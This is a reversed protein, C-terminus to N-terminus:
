KKGSLIVLNVAFIILFIGTFQIKTIVENFFLTGALLACLPEMCGLISTITPGAIKIAYVLAIDSVLTPLLALLLIFIWNASSGAPSFNLGDEVLLNIFFLAGSLALVYFTIVTGNTKKLAPLKNVGVIYVAYTIVTTGVFFLGTHNIAKGGCAGSLMYVGAVSLLVAVATHWRLKDRFFLTMAITVAIPYSFHITTAIGGPIYDYSRLLFLSTVAYFFSLLLLDAFERRKISFSIRRIKMYIALAMTAIAFRYLCISDPKMGEDLLPISFSPILGFTASSVIALVIGDYKRM